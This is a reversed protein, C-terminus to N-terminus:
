LGDGTNFHGKVDASGVEHPALIPSTPKGPPGSYRRPRPTPGLGQRSLLACVTSRAPLLWSPPRKQLLALRKKAGWAPHHRRLEM